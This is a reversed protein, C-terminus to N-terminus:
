LGGANQLEPRLPLPLPTFAEKRTVTLKALAGNEDLTLLARSILLTDDIALFEDSVHVLTNPQWLRGAADRWGAVTLEAQWARGLRVSAEWDARTQMYFPGYTMIDCLVVLPRYLPVAPDVAKANGAAAQTPDALDEAVTQSAVLYESFRDRGSYRGRASLISVGLAIGSRAGATGADTLLLGGKGDSMVLIASQAAIRQITEFATESAQVAANLVITQAGAVDASVAIGFPKAISQIMALATGSPLQVAGSLTSCDVLQGAADRGEIRVAHTEADYEPAALDVYGTIVTDAGIALRCADYPKIQAVAQRGPWRETVTLRFQGAITELNRDIEVATWGSFERGGVALTVADPPMASSRSVSPPFSCRIACTTASCSTRPGPRITMSGTRWRSQLRRRRRGSRRSRRCSRRPATSSACRPLGCRRSRRLPPTTARLSSRRTSRTRSFTARPLPRPREFQVSVGRSGAGSRRACRRARARRDGRHQSTQTLRDPDSAAAPPAPAVSPSLSSTGGLGLMAAFLDDITEASAAIGGDFLDSWAGGLVISSVSQIAGVVTSAVSLPVSLAAGIAAQATGIASLVTGVATTIPAVATKVADLASSLDSQASGAVWAVTGSAAFKGAFDQSAAADASAAADTVEAGPAPVIVAAFSIDGPEVFSLEFDARGVTATSESVKCGTCSAQMEGFLPHVLKGAGATECATIIADRQAQWNPGVVFVSLTFERAKRGMDEAYPKDRKPYEHKAVRRGLDASSTQYLFPAGRFSGAQIGDALAMLLAGADPGNRYERQGRPRGRDQHAHGQARERAQDHRHRAAATRAPVPQRLDQAYRGAAGRRSRRYRRLSQPERGPEFRHAFESAPTGRARMWTPVFKALNEFVSLVGNWHEYVEYGIGALATAAIVFAGIPNTSMAIDFAGLVPLGLDIATFFDGAVAIGSGLAGVVGTIAPIAIQAGRAIMPLILLGALAGVAPAVVEPYGKLAGAIMKLPATAYADAVSHLGDRVSVLASSLTHASEASEQM